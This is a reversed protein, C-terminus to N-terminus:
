LEELQKSVATLKELIGTVAEVPSGSPALKLYRAQLAERRTLLGAAVRVPRELGAEEPDGGPRMPM